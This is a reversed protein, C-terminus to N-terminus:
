ASSREQRARLFQDQRALFEKPGLRLYTRTNKVWGGATKSRSRPCDQGHPAGPKRNCIPCERNAEGM